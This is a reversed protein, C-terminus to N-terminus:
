VRDLELLDVLREKHKKKRRGAKERPDPLVREAPVTGVRARANTKVAKVISFVRKKAKKM